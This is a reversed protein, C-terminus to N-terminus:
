IVISRCSMVISGGIRCVPVYVMGTWTTEPTTASTLVITLGNSSPSDQALGPGRFTEAAARHGLADGCGLVEFSLLVQQAREHVRGAVQRLREADNVGIVEVPLVVPQDEFRHQIQEVRTLRNLGQGDDLLQGLRSRELGGAAFAPDQVQDLRRVDGRAVPGVGLDDVVRRGM